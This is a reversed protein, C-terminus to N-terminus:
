AGIPTRAPCPLAPGQAPLYGSALYSAADAGWPPRFSYLCALRLRTSAAYASFRHPSVHLREAASMVAAHAIAYRRTTLLNQRWRLELHVDLNALDVAAEARCSEDFDLL